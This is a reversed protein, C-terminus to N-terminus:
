GYKISLLKDLKSLKSMYFGESWLSLSKQEIPKLLREVDESADQWTISTIKDGLAKVLWERDVGLKQGAWWGSWSSHLCFGIPIVQM